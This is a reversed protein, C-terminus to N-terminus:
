RTRPIYGLLYVRTYPNSLVGRVRHFGGAPGMQATTAAVLVLRRGLLREDLVDFLVVAAFHTVATVYRLTIVM